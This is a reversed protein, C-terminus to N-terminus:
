TSSPKPPSPSTHALTKGSRSAAHTPLPVWSGRCSLSTASPVCVAVLWRELPRESVPSSDVCSAATQDAQGARLALAVRQGLVAQECAGDRNPRPACSRAFADPVPAHYAPCGQRSSSVM